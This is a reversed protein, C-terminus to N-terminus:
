LLLSHVFVLDNRKMIESVSSDTVPCSQHPLCSVYGRASSWVMSNVLHSFMSRHGRGYGVSSVANGPRILRRRRSWPRLQALLYGRTFRAVDARVTNDNCGCHRFVVLFTFCQWNVNRLRYTLTNSVASLAVHVLPRLNV